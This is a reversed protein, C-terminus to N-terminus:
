QFLHLYEGNPGFSSSRARGAANAIQEILPRIMVGMEQISRPVTELIVEGFHLQDRDLISIDDDEAWNAKLGVNIAVGKVGVLSLLVVYPPEVGQEQLSKLYRVGSSLMMGEIKSSLLRPPVGAPREGSAISSAVSEVIGSRYVQVYARQAGAKEDANSLRLIGDINIKWTRASTSAFPPFASPNKEIVDLALLSRPDLAAFPVVHMVLCTQDLLQVPAGGAVIQAVRDARFDRIRDAIQPALTFLARLEDVNPEYKGASSRAWFRNQGKGQRVVRHPPNFSRPIRVVLVYGGTSIPVSKFELNSIRPQLGSRALQELRLIENDPDGNLPSLATPVGKTAAVGILLDGGATNAFSTIDALWEAHDADAAGYSERKYEIDRAEAVRASVLRNLQAEDIAGLPLHLLAM